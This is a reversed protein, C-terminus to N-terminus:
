RAGGTAEPQDTVPAGTPVGHVTIRVDAGHATGMGTMWTNDKYSLLEMREPAISLHERWAECAALHEPQSAHVTIEIRRFISCLKIQAVPLEAVRPDTLLEALAGTPLTRMLSVSSTTPDTM